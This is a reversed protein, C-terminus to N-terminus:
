LAILPLYEPQWRMREVLLDMKEANNEHWFSCFVCPRSVGRSIAARGVAKAV